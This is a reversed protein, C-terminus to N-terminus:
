CGFSKAKITENLVSLEDMVYDSETKNRSSISVIAIKAKGPLNQSITNFSNNIAEDILSDGDNNKGEKSVKIRGYDNK